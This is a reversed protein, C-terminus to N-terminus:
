GHLVVLPAAGHATFTAHVTSLPPILFRVTLCRAKDRGLPFRGKYAPDLLFSQHACARNHCRYRQKGKATKGRKTVQDSQGYLCRVPIRVM